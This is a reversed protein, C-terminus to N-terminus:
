TKSRIWIAGRGAAFIAPQLSTARGQLDHKGVIPTQYHGYLAEKLQTEVFARKEEVVLVTEVREAFEVALEGDLPWTMGLKLLQIGAAAIQELTALGLLEFVQRVDSYAKGACVIGLRSLGKSGPTVWKNINNKRAYALAQPLNEHLIRSEQAVPTDETRIFLDAKTPLVQPYRDLGM